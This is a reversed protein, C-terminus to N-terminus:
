RNLHISGFGFILRQDRKKFTLGNLSTWCRRVGADDFVKVCSAPKNLRLYVDLVVALFQRKFIGRIVILKNFRKVPHLIPDALESLFMGLVVM